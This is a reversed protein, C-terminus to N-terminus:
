STAHTQCSQEKIWLDRKRRAIELTVAVCSFLNGNEDRYDYQLVMGIPSLFTEYRESSAPCTSCGKIDSKM